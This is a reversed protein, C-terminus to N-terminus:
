VLELINKFDSVIHTPNLKILTGINYFKKHEDPYFLISDIGANLAAGLDKDSDGIMVASDKTGGLLLLAKEIPEPHPKHHTVDNAAVIADFFREMDYKKLLHAINEHPSTTTLAIQKGKERLQELVELADPYLEVEPLKKKAISDAEALAQHPDTVGWKTMHTTFSGFSAGIQEDTVQIGQSNVATRCAELWIDLTKALNGDWDLLIYQYSKMSYNKGDKSLM